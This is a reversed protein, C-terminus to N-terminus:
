ETSRELNLKFIYKDIDGSSIELKLICYAYGSFNLDDSDLTVSIIGSAGQSKDFDSDSKEFLYTTDSLSSKGYLSCVADSVDILNGDEDKVTFTLTKAEKQVLEFTTLSGM